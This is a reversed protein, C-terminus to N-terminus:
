ERGGGIQQPYYFAYIGPFVSDLAKLNAERKREYAAQEEPTRNEDRVAQVLQANTKCARALDANTRQRGNPENLLALVSAYKEKRAKVRADTM